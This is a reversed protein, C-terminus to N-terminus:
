SGEGPTSGAPPVPGAGLIRFEVRRNASRGAATANDAVPQTEGYGAARLHQPPVGSAALYRAVATARRESLKQNVAADGRADTHSAVEFSAGCGRLIDAVGQLVSFSGGSLEATGTKFTIPREKMYQDVRWQCAGASGIVAIRNKVSTVGAVAAALAGARERIREDPAAGSLELRQGRGEVGVWYLDVGHLAARASTSVDTQIASAQNFVCVFVLCLFLAGTGTVIEFRSFEFEM